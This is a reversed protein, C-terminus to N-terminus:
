QRRFLRIYSFALILNIGIMIFGAAAGKSLLGFEFAQRYMYLSSTTSSFLPGGNTMVLILDFFNVSWMTILILNILIFPRLLPLTIYFFSKIKTAGDIRAAEYVLPNISFLGATLFIVTFPTGHWMNAIVLTWVVTGPDSLWAVPNLGMQGLGYNLVGFSDNFIFKFSFGTIVASVTWPIIFLARLTNSGRIEQNLVVALVMGVFFQIAVSGGVFVLSVQLSKHFDPDYLLNSFNKIGVYKWGGLITTLSVDHVSLYINWILPFLLFAILISLAPLLLLYPQLKQTRLQLM